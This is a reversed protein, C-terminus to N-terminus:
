ADPVLELRTYTIRGKLAAEPTPWFKRSPNAQYIPFFRWGKGNTLVVMGHHLEVGHFMAHVKYVCPEFAEVRVRLAEFAQQKNAHESRHESCEEFMKTPVHTVRVGNHRPVWASGTNFTSISLDEPKLEM